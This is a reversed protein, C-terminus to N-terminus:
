DSPDVRSVPQPKVPSSKIKELQKEQEDIIKNKREIEFQLAKTEEGQKTKMAEMEKTLEEFQTEKKALKTQLTTNKREYRDLLSEKKTAEVIQEDLKTELEHMQERYHKVATTHTKLVSEKNKCQDLAKKKEELAKTAKEEAENLKKTLRQIEVEKEELRQHVVSLENEDERTKKMMKDQEQLLSENMEICEMNEIVTTHLSKRLKGVDQQLSGIDLFLLTNEEALLAAHRKAHKVFHDSLDRRMLWADCGAYHFDCNVTTLPCDNILHSDLKCRAFEDGCVNTCPIPYYPCVGYHQNSLMFKTGTYEKCYECQYPKQPCENEHDELEGRPYEENCYLCKLIVYRCGKLRVTPSPSFNLHSDFDALPGTWECGIKKKPCLVDRQNLQRHLRKDPVIPNPDGKCLPCKFQREALLPKICGQCFSMGCCHFLQPDRLISLCISCDYQLEQPPDVFETDFGSLQAM